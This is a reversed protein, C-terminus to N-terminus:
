KYFIVTYVMNHASHTLTSMFVFESTALVEDSDIHSLYGSFGAAAKNEDLPRKRNKPHGVVVVADGSLLADEVADVASRWSLRNDEEVRVDEFKDLKLHISVSNLNHQRRMMSVNRGVADDESIVTFFRLEPCVERSVIDVDYMTAHVNEKDDSVTAVIHVGEIHGMANAENFMNRVTEISDLANSSIRVEIGLKKWLEKKFLSYSSINPVNLFLKKAGREVFRDAVKFSFGDQDCVIVHCLKNSLSLRPQAPPLQEHMRLLVRGRHRSAALLRFARATDHPAYTVRSLPRVYGLRIGDSIMLKIKRFEEINQDGYISSIDIISYTRGFNLCNMGFESNVEDHLQNIDFTTGKESCCSLSVSKLSGKLCSLVIDCGCGKTKYMVMEKFSDDRSNGIHDALLDPFLKTLFTKKHHDSVTTFVRCGVALAVAIAAQGVAGAGGHVLVCTGPVLRSKIGLCYFVITYALPVTAADELSWHSPVPWLYQVPSRIKASVSGSTPTIGMVREGRDSIGSFSIGFGQDEAVNTPVQALARWADYSNLEAYHVQVNIDAPQQNVNPIRLWYLSNLDGLQSCRLAAVDDSAYNRNLPLYFEGGWTNEYFINFPLEFSPLQKLDVKYKDNVMALFVQNRDQQSRWQKVLQKLDGPAPYSTFAVLKQHTKLNSRAVALCQLDEPRAVTVAVASLPKTKRRLLALRSDGMGVASIELYPSLVHHSSVSVGITILFVDPYLHHLSDFVDPDEINIRTVDEEKFVNIDIQELSPGTIM